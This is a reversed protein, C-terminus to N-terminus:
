NGLEVVKVEYWFNGEPWHKKESGDITVFWAHCIGATDVNGAAFDMQASGVIFFTHTGTGATLGTIPGAGPYTELKFRDTSVETAFYRTAATLGSPLASSTAVIIIDGEMVGHADCKLHSTTTDVTFVQTPHITVGTATEALEADGDQQEMVFKVSDYTALDVPDGNAQRIVTNLPFLTDGLTITFTGIAPM